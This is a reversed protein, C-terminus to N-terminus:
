QRTHETIDTYEMDDSCMVCCLTHLLVTMLSECLTSQCVVLDALDVNLHPQSQHCYESMRIQVVAKTVVESVLKTVGLAMSEEIRCSGMLKWFYSDQVRSDHEGKMWTHLTNLVMSSLLRKASERKRNAVLLPLVAVIDDESCHPLILREFSDDKSHKAAETVAWRHQTASVGRELVMDVTVWLGRSVQHSLVQELEEDCCWPLVYVVFYVYFAHQCAQDVAWRHQKASVGRELVKGVSKWLGQSVLHTLVLELEEETCHPLVNRLFDEETTQSLAEKVAWKHQETSMKESAERLEESIVKGPPGESPTAM